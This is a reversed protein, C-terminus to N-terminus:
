CPPCSARVQRLDDGKKYIMVCRLEQGTQVLATRQALV